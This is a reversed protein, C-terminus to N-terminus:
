FNFGIGWEIAQAKAGHAKISVNAFAQPIFYYRLAVREYVPLHYDVPRYLYFGLHVAMRFKNVILDSGVYGAYSIYDTNSLNATDDYYSFLYENYFVDVGAGINRKENLRKSIGVSATTNLYKDDSGNESGGRFGYAVMGNISYKKHKQPPEPEYFGDLTKGPLYSLVMQASIMNLGLNPQKVAGNSFHQFKLGGGIDLRNSIEHKYLLSFDIYVNLDSGIAINEPNNLLDFENQHFSVGTGWSTSYTGSKIRKFPLDIYTFLALPNGIIDNFFYGSYFGFGYTPYNYVKQWYKIGTTQMGVRLEQGLYPKKGLHTMAKRHVAVAGSYGYWEVKLVSSQPTETQGLVVIHCFSIIFFIIFGLRM